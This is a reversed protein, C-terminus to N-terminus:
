RLSRYLVTGHLLHNLRKKPNNTLLKAHHNEPSLYLNYRPIDVYLSIIIIESYVVSYVQHSVGIPKKDARFQLKSVIVGGFIHREMFFGGESPRGGKTLFGLVQCKEPTDGKKNSGFGQRRMWHVTEHLITTMLEFM